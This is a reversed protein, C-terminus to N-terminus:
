LSKMTKSYKGKIEKISKLIYNNNPEIQKWYYLRGLIRDIYYIDNYRKVQDMIGYKLLYHVQQKIERRFSKPLGISDNKVVVGTILKRQKGYYYRSKDANVQFGEEELIEEIFVDFDNPIEYGSIAIDDAYRTYTLNYMESLKSLRKDLNYLIINSITPSTAAGQPISGNLCCLSSLYYAIEKSYGLRKFLERVRPIKISPFFDKLDIKLMEDAGIHQYANQAVNRGKVYAYASKHIEFKSLINQLIWQQVELLSAYPTVIDRLGGSRKPIKFSRYFSAPRKVMNSLIGVKLGLLLSLHKNNIIVPVGNDYARKVFYKREAKDKQSLTSSEITSIWDQLNFNM